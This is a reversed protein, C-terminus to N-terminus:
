GRFFGRVGGRGKAYSRKETEETATPALAEVSVGPLASAEAGGRYTGM